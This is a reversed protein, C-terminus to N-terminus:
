DIKNILNFVWLFRGDILNVIYLYIIKYQRLATPYKM